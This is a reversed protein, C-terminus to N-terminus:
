SVSLFPEAPSPKAQELSEENFDHTMYTREAFWQTTVRGESKVITSVTMPPGGSKLRVVDGRQFM